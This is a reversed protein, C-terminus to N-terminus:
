FTKYSEEVKVGGNGQVYTIFYGLFLPKLLSHSLLVQTQAELM